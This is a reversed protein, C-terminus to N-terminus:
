GGTKLTEREGFILTRRNNYNTKEPGSRHSGKVPVWRISLLWQYWLSLQM